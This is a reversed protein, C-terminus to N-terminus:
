VSPPGTRMGLTNSPFFRSNKIDFKSPYLDRKVLVLKAVVRVGAIRFPSKEERREAPTTKASAVVRVPVNGLMVWDTKGLLWIGWFRRLGPEMRRRLYM